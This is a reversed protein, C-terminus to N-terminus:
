HEVKARGKEVKRGIEALSDKDSLKVGVIKKGGFFSKYENITITQPKYLEVISNILKSRTGTIPLGHAKCVHKVEVLSLTSLQEKNYKMGSYLSSETMSLM